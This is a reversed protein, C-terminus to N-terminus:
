ADILMLTGGKQVRSIPSSYPSVPAVSKSPSMAPPHRRPGDRNSPRVLLSVFQQPRRVVLMVPILRCRRWCLSGVFISCSAFLSSVGGRTFEHRRRMREEEAAKGSKRRAAEVAKAVGPRASCVADYSLCPFLSRRGDVGGRVRRARAWRRGEFCVFRHIGVTIDLAVVCSASSLVSSSLQPLIIAVHEQFTAIHPLSNARFRYAEDQGV